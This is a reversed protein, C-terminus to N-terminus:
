LTRIKTERSYLEIRDGEQVEVRKESHFSLGCMEGVQVEKVDQPGRQLKVIELEEAIKEKGRYVRAL